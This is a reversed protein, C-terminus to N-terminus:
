ESSDEPLHPAINAPCETYICRHCENRRISAGFVVLSLIYITLLGPSRILWYVPFILILAPAAFSLTKEKISLPGPRPIFFKPMGWFFICNLVKEDRCYHPCHTCFFRLMVPVAGAALLLFIVAGVTSHRFIGTLATIVPIALFAIYFLFDTFEFSYKLPASNKTM